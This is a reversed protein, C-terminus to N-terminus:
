KNGHSVWHKLSHTYIPDIGAICCFSCSRVREIAAREDETVSLVHAGPPVGEEGEGFEGQDGALLQLLAEPNQAFAQALQPNSQALQQILPQILQPQQQM